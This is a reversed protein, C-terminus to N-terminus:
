VDFIVQATWTGDQQQVKLMHFTVAKVDSRLEHKGENISEGYAKAKLSTESIKDVTFQSFLMHNVESIYLLENLWEVLLEDLGDAEVEIKEEKEASVSAPDVMISFMGLAANAFVEKLDGGFARIGTDATHEIVEYPKM